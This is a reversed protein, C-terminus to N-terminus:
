VVCAHGILCHAELFALVYASDNETCLSRTVTILNGERSTQQAGSQYMCCRKWLGEKVCLGHQLWPHVEELAVLHGTGNFTELDVLPIIYIPRM